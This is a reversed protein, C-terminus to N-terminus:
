KMSFRARRLRGSRARCMLKPARSVKCASRPIYCGPCGGLNEDLHYDGNTLIDLGAQEQDSVVAAVADLFKERYDVDTMADSLTRAWLSKDFWRPRPWSGTVTTPFMIDKTTTLM